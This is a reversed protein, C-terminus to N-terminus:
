NTLLADPASVSLHDLLATMKRDLELGVATIKPNGFSAFQDSPKDFTFYASGDPDGWIVTHLPACLLVAPSTANRSTRLACAM